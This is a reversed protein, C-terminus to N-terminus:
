KCKWVQGVLEAEAVFSDFSIAIFTQLQRGNEDYYSVISNCAPGTYILVYITAGKYNYQNLVPDCTCGNAKVEDIVPKLVEQANERTLKQPDKECAAFVFPLLLVPIMKLIPGSFRLKM